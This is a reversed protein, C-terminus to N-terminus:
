KFFKNSNESGLFYRMNDLHVATEIQWPDTETGSGGAFYEKDYYEPVSKLYVDSDTYAIDDDFSFHIVGRTDNAITNGAVNIVRNFNGHWGGGLGPSNFGLGTDLSNFWEGHDDRISEIPPAGTRGHTLQVEQAIASSLVFGLM